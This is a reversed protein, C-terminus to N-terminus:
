AFADDGTDVAAEMQRFALGDGAGRAPEAAIRVVEGVVNGLRASVM